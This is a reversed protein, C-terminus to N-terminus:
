HDETAGANAHASPGRDSLRIDGRVFAVSDPRQLAERHVLQVFKPASTHVGRDKGDRLDPSLSDYAGVKPISPSGTLHTHGHPSRITRTFLGPHARRFRRPPRCKMAQRIDHPCHANLHESMRLSRSTTM